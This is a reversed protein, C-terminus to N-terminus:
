PLSRACIESCKTLNIHRHRRPIPCVKLEQAKGMRQMDSDDVPAGGRAAQSSEPDMAHSEMDASELGPTKSTQM